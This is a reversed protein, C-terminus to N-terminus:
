GLSQPACLVHLPKPEFPFPFHVTIGEAKVAERVGVSKDKSGPSLQSCKKKKVDANYLCLNPCLRLRALLSLRIANQGEACKGKRKGETHIVLVGKVQYVGM